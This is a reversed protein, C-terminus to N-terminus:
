YDDDEKGGVHFWSELLYKKKLLPYNYKFVRKSHVHKIGQAWTCKFFNLTNNWQRRRRVKSFFM